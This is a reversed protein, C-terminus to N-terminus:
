TTIKPAQLPPPRRQLDNKARTHPCHLLPPTPLPLRAKVETLLLLPLLPLPLDAQQKHLKRRLVLM